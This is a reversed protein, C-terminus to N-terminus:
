FSCVLLLPVFIKRGARPSTEREVSLDPGGDLLFYSDETAVRLAFVLEIWEPM